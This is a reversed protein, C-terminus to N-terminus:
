LVGVGRRRIDARFVVSRLRALGKLNGAADARCQFRLDDADGFEFAPSLRLRNRIKDLLRQRTVEGLPKAHHELCGNLIRDCRLHSLLVISRAVKREFREV